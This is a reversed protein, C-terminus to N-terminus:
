NQTIGVLTARTGDMSLAADYTGSLNDTQHGLLFVHYSDTLVFNGKVHVLGTSPDFSETANLVPNGVLTWTANDGSQGLSM